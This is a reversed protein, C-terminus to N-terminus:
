CFALLAIVREALGIVYMDLGEYLNYATCICTLHNIQRLRDLAPTHLILYEVGWIEGGRFHFFLYLFVHVADVFSYSNEYLPNYGVYM